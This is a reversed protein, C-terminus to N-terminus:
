EHQHTESYCHEILSRYLANQSLLTRNGVIIMQKRARTLAVNLKRDVPYKGKNGEATFTNSTLFELQHNQSITTSFIIIDRQSGQYREVTDITIDTWITSINSSASQNGEGALVEIEKRILSIQNRYPVIIGISKAVNFNNGLQRTLRMVLSACMRAEAENSKLETDGEIDDKRVNFFIMRHTKLTDDLTDLSPENYNLSQEEQHPLPVPHLNEDKYFSKNPWAAVEPHMRGQFRLLGIGALSTNRDQKDVAKSYLYNNLREFLSNRCNTLGIARLLPDNVNSDAESQQVVAPLQKHDGILIFKGLRALLGIINPELIQSAEDVITLTFRKISLIQQHSMLTSTTAVVVPVEAIRERIKALNGLEAFMKSALNKHFRADCSYPNGIRLFDVGADALMECIEDVARNTYSTLLISSDSKGEAQITALHEQVMFRMAMSTKGTGPPGVLLFYDKARKAKLLIDDYAPHYNRTLTINRDYEPLRQGLLLDRRDKPASVLMHLAQLGSGLGSSSYSQEIAWLTEDSDNRVPQPDSLHITVDTASLTEICGKYLIAKTADPETGKKFKFLHVFDGQRFSVESSETRHLVVEKVPDYSNCEVKGVIITGQSIKEDFPMNWIDAMGSNVGEQAGLCSIAQERYIFTAMRCFYAKELESMTHLPTLVDILKPLLYTKYFPTDIGAENLTQPTLTKIIAPSFGERAFFMCSAVIRNRVKLAEQVLKQYYNVVLLGDPLPYRSYMLRIDLKDFPINFNQHLVAFYLLLQVYHDEKQYTGHQNKRKIELDYNRGSKQEVLYHMDASMLDVRGQLGLAPCVFSPELIYEAEEPGNARIQKIIEKINEAQRQCMNKYDDQKFDPCTAYALADEAFHRNLNDRWSGEGHICDDLLMGAYNGLIIAMSNASPSMRSVMYAYPHHGYDTFCHSVSSIDLLYDPEIIIFRPFLIGDENENVDTLSLMMGEKAMRLIYEHEPSVNVYRSAEGTELRVIIANEKDGKDKRLTTDVICRIHRYDIHKAKPKQRGKVPIKGVVEAPIGCKLVASALIALARCDYLIEQEDLDKEKGNSHRRATQIEITDPVSINCKRCLFDVQAFLNGFSQNTDKVGEHCILVLTDHMYLMRLAIHTDSHTALWSIRSFIESNM